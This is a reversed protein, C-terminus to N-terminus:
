SNQLTPPPEDGGKQSSSNASKALEEALGWRVGRDSVTLSEARWHDLLAIAILGGAVIVDARKPEIGPVARRQAVNMAALDFVTKRLTATSLNAGHVRTGDYPDIGLAVAALTTVTGAVGVPAVNPAVEPVTRFAQTLTTAIAELEAPLPPDNSISRETLRVSGVDFSQAYRVARAGPLGLVIETSGGGIDFVATETEESRTLGSLAGHFTLRAEDEGSIVRADVGFLDRIRARLEEGGAADRMASTGVLAIREVASKHVIAAYEELCTRTRAVAEPKLRRTRDVDEGLRTITAREVLPSLGRATEEAVLLLVTNTGIDIAAVRM